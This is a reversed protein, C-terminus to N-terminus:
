DPVHGGSSPHFPPVAVVGPVTALPAVAPGSTMGAEHRVARALVANVESHLVMLAIMLILRRSLM